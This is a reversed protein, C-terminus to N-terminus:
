VHGRPSRHRTSCYFSAAAGGGLGGLCVLTTSGLTYTGDVAFFNVGDGAAIQEGAPLQALALLAERQASDLHEVLVALYQRALAENAIRTGALANCVATFAQVQSASISDAGTAAWAGSSTPAAIAAVCGSLALLFRRRSAPDPLPM